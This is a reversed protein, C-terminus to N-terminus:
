RHHDSSSSMKFKSEERCWAIKSAELKEANPSLMTIKAGFFSFIQLALIDKDAAKGIEILYDRLRMGKRVSMANSNNRIPYDSWNFWYTNVFDPRDKFIRDELFSNIGNIHDDDTHTICWLDVKENRSQIALLEKQTTTKYTEAYGADILINHFVQDEGLFRIAIADGCGVSFFQVSLYEQMELKGKNHV